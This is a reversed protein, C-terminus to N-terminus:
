QVLDTQRLTSRSFTAELGGILVANALRGFHVARRELAADSALFDHFRTAHITVVTKCALRSCATM